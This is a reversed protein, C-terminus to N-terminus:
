LDAEAARLRMRHGAQAIRIGARVLWEGMIRRPTVRPAALAM